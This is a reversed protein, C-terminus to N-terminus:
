ATLNKRMARLRRASGLERIGSPPIGFARRFSHTFHSHSSYGLRLALRTLNGFGEDLLELSTRLRIQDLHRHITTGTEARFIRCLEYPSCHLSTAIRTLTLDERFGEVLYRQADLALRRRASSGTRSGPRGSRSGAAPAQAVIRDLVTLLVEEVLLRDPPRQRAIHEVVMRQLLYSQPDSPGHTLGFPRDPEAFARGGRRVFAEALV